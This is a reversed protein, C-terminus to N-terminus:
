GVINRKMQKRKNRVFFTLFNVYMHTQLQKILIPKLSNLQDKSYEVFKYLAGMPM